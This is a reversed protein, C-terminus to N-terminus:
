YGAADPAGLGPGGSGPLGRLRSELTDLTRELEAMRYDFLEEAGALDDDPAAALQEARAADAADLAGNIAEAIRESLTLNDMQRSMALSLQVGVLQGSGDVTAAASGDAAQAVFERVALEAAKEQADALRAPLDALLRGLRDVPGTM